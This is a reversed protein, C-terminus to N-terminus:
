RPAGLGEAIARCADAAIRSILTEGSRSTSSDGLTASWITEGTAPDLGRLELLAKAKPVFLFWSKEYTVVRGRVVLNAGLRRGLEGARRDDLRSLEPSTLKEDLMLNRLATEDIVRFRGGAAVARSIRRAFMAGSGQGGTRGALTYDKIEGKAGSDDLPFVAIVWEAPQVVPREVRVQFIASGGCGALAALLCLMGAYGAAARAAGAWGPVSKMEAIPM